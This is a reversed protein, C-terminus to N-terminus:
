LLLTQKSLANRLIRGLLLFFSSETQSENLLVNTKSGQLALSSLLNVRALLELFYIRALLMVISILDQWYSFLKM